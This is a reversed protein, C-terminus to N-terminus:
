ARVPAPRSRLKKTVWMVLAAGLWLVLPSVLMMFLHGLLHMATPENGAYEDAAYINRLGLSSLLVGTISVVNALVAQLYLLPLLHRYGGFGTLAVRIGCYVMGALVVATMSFLAVTRDPLGALSLALRAVGVALILWLVLVEFRVYESLRKGLVTM